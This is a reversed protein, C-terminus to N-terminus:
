NDIGQKYISRKLDDVTVAEANGDLQITMPFRSSGKSPAGPKYGRPVITLQM